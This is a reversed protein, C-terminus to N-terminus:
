PSTPVPVLVLLTSERPCFLATLVTCSLLSCPFGRSRRELPGTHAHLLCWTVWHCDDCYTSNEGCAPLSAMAGFRWGLLLHTAQAYFPEVVARGVRDRTVTAAFSLSGAMKSGLEPACIAADGSEGSGTDM